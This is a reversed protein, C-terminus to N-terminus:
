VIIIKDLVDELVHLHVTLLGVIFLIVFLTQAIVPKHQVTIRVFINIGLFVIMLALVGLYIYKSTRVLRAAFLIKKDQIPEVYVLETNLEEQGLVSSLNEAATEENVTEVGSVVSTDEIPIDKVPIKESEPVIEKTPVPMIAVEEIKKEEIKEPAKTEAETGLVSAEPEKIPVEIVPEAKKEPAPAASALATNKTAGFFEVLVNTQRGNIEGSAMALGIDSYKPNMINKKHTPSQMLAKHVATASTFNMALNEGVFIYSYQGRDIWDWPKKGDPSYHAFYSNAIMDDAKKQASSSLVPNLTLTTLSEAQRDKNTLELVTQKILESMRAQNPYIFFLYGTVSLKLSILLVTIIALSKTRLIKPKHDNNEGPIFYDQFISTSDCCFKGLSEKGDKLRKIEKEEKHAFDKFNEELKKRNKFLFYFLKAFLSGLFLWFFWKDKKSKKNKNKM